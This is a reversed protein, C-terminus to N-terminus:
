LLLLLLSLLLLSLLLLSLIVIPDTLTGRGEMRNNRWTGTYVWMNNFIMKGHGDRMDNKFEGEYISKDQYYM